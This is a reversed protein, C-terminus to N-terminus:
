GRRPSTDSLSPLSMLPLSPHAPCLPHSFVCLVKGSVAHLPISGANPLRRRTAAEPSSVTRSSVLTSNTLHHNVLQKVSVDPAFRTCREIM